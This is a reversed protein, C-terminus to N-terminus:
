SSIVLDYQQLDLQELALPMLPLYKQYWRTAWPLRSIFSTAIKRGPLHQAVLDPDVVHTYIDAQPFLDAVAKLVQEGGRWTVLWYHILAVRM